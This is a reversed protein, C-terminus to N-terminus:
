GALGDISDGLYDDAIRGAISPATRYRFPLSPFPLLVEVEMAGISPPEGPVALIILPMDLVEHTALLRLERQGVRRWEPAHADGPQDQAEAGEDKDSRDLAVEKGM